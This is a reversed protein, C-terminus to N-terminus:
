PRGFFYVAGLRFAAVSPSNLGVSVKLKMSPGLLIAAQFEAKIMPVISQIIEGAANGEEDFTDTFVAPPLGPQTDTSTFSGHQRITGASFGVGGGVNAGLQVRNAATYVPIFFHVEVGDVLVDRSDITQNLVLINCFANNPGSCQTENITSTASRDEIPKRVYSVGLEGGRTTGRVFGISLESGEHNPYDEPGWLLREQFDRDATWTPTFSAAVGWRKQSSLQANAVAPLALVLVMLWFAYAVVNRRGPGGPCVGLM